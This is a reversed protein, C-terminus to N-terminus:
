TTTTLYYRSIPGDSSEARPQIWSPTKRKSTQHRLARQSPRKIWCLLRFKHPQEPNWSNPLLLQWATLPKPVPM